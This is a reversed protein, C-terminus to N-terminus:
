VTGEEKCDKVTNWYKQETEFAENYHGDNACLPQFFVNLGILPTGENRTLQYYRGNQQHFQEYGEDLEPNSSVKIDTIPCEQRSRVCYGSCLTTNSPCPQRLSVAPFRKYCFQFAPSDWNHLEKRTIHNQYITPFTKLSLLATDQPCGANPPALVLTSFAPQTFFPAILYLSQPIATLKSDFITQGIWILLTLNIFVYVSPAHM